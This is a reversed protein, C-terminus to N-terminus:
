PPFRARGRLLAASRTRRSRRGSRACEGFEYRQQRALRRRPEWMRQETIDACRGVFGDCATQQAVVLVRETEAMLEPSQCNLTRYRTCTGALQVRGDQLRERRMVGIQRLEYVVGRVRLVYRRQQQVRRLGGFTGREGTRMALGDSVQCRRQAMGVRQGRGLAGLQVLAM